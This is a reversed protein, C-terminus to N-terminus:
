ILYICVLREEFPTIEALKKLARQYGPEIQAQEELTAWDRLEERTAEM